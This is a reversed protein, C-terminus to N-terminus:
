LYTLWPYVDMQNVISCKLFPLSSCQVSIHGGTSGGLVEFHGSDHLSVARWGPCPASVLAASYVLSSANARCMIAGKRKVASTDPLSWLMTPHHLAVLHLMEFVNRKGGPEKKFHKKLWTHRCAQLKFCKLPVQLAECLVKAWPRLCRVILWTSLAM